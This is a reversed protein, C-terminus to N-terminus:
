IITPSIRVLVGTTQSQAASEESNGPSVIVIQSLSSRTGASSYGLKITDKGAKPKTACRHMQYGNSRDLASQPNSKTKWGLHSVSCLENQTHERKIQIRPHIELRLDGIRQAGDQQFLQRPDSTTSPTQKCRLREVHSSCHSPELQTRAM